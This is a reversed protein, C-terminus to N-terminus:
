VTDWFLIGSMISQLEFCSWYINTIKPVCIETVAPWWVVMWTGAEGLTHKQVVQPLRFVAFYVNFHVFCMFFMRSMILQLKFYSWIQITKPALIGSVVSWLQGNLNVGWGVDTEASGAFFLVHSIRLLLISSADAHRHECLLCINQINVTLLQVVPCKYLSDVLTVSM